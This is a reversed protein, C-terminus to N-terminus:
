WEKYDYFPYSKRGPFGPFGEWLLLPALNPHGIFVVGYLDRGEREFWDAGKWVGTVSPVEPKDAPVRVKVVMKHRKEMSWLHYVVELIDGYDVVSLCRLFDMRTRPDDRLSRCVEVVQEAPVLAVVEDLAVSLAISFPRLVEPLIAQLAQARADLRQPASPAHGGGAGPSHSPPPTPRADSM